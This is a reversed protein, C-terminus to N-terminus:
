VYVLLVHPSLIPRYTESGRRRWINIDLLKLFNDQVGPSFVNLYQHQAHNLWALLEIITIGPDAEQFDTWQDSLYVVNNLSEELIEEVSENNLNQTEIM